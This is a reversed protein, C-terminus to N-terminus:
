RDMYGLAELMARDETDLAMDVQVERGGLLEDLAESAAQVREADEVPFLEGPDAVLDFLADEDDEYRIFKAEPLRWAVDVPPDEVHRAGITSAVVAVDPCTRGELMPVLSRGQEAGESLGHLEVLTPVVDLTSVQCAVRTGEHGPARIVLPILLSPDFLDDGHEFLVGHETLSEGHDAVVIVTTDDLIGHQELRDLLRGTLADTKELEDDYAQTLWETSTISRHYPPWYAPLDLPEGVRPADDASKAEYPAHPDFLHVWLFFRGEAHRDIFREARAIAVEGKRERLANGPLLVQDLARALSLRHWGPLRGFDDDYVDFGQDWGYKSHLPFGSVVGGTRYGAQQLRHVILEPRDGLPTANSVVGHEITPLGTLISLHSPETLPATAVATEFVAGEAALRELAPTQAPGGYVSLRDPRATDWTVLVINSGSANTPAPPVGRLLGAFALIFGVWPLFEGVRRVLRAFSLGVLLGGVFMAVLVGAVGPDRLSENLVLEFRYYLALHLGLLAGLPLGDARPGVVPLKRVAWGLVGFPLAVALGAGCALTLWTLQEFFGFGLGPECRVLFEVCGGVAGLM